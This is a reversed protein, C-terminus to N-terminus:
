ETIKEEKYKKLITKKTRRETDNKTIKKEKYNVERRNDSATVV